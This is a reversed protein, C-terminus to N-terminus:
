LNESLETIAEVAQRRVADSVEYSSYFTENKYYAQLKINGNRLKTIGLTIDPDSTNYNKLISNLYKIQPSYGVAIDFVIYPMTVIDNDQKHGQCCSITRYCGKNFNSVAIVMEADIPFLEVWDDDEPDSCCPAYICSNVQVFAECKEFFEKHEVPVQVDIEPIKIKSKFDINYTKFCCPCMYVTGMNNFVKIRM